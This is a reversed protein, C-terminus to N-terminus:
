SWPWCLLLSPWQKWMGVAVMRTTEWIVGTWRPGSLQRGWVEIGRFGHGSDRGAEGRLEKNWLGWGVSSSAPSSFNPYTHLPSSFLTPHTAASVYATSGWATSM